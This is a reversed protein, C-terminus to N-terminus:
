NKEPEIPKKDDIINYGKKRLKDVLWDVQIDIHTDPYITEPLNEKKETKKFWRKCDKDFDSEYETKYKSKDMPVSKHSTIRKMLDDSIPIKPSDFKELLEGYFKIQDELHAVQDLSLREAGDVFIAKESWKIRFKLQNQLVEELKTLNDNWKLYSNSVKIWADEWNERSEIDADLNKELTEIKCFICYGINKDFYANHTKCYGFNNLNELTKKESM